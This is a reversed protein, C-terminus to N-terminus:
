VKISAKSTQQVSLLLGGGRFNAEAIFQPIGNTLNVSHEHVHGSFIGHLNPSSFVAEYFSFTTATHGEKPWRPRREIKYSPDTAAGWEPHGCGFGIEHGPFYMPIHIFLFTPLGRAIQQRFFALQAPSIEYTSNDIFVLITGKITKAYMLPDEGQYLPKLRKEIWEARLENIPGPMGEYHWDHNGGTYCYPLETAEMKTLLWEVGAESPYNLIDGDLVVLDVAEERAQALTADFCEFPNTAEGSAFHTTQRYARNMRASYQRFVDGRADDVTVHTDAIVMIKLATPAAYAPLYYNLDTSKLTFTPASSISRSTIEPTVAWAPAHAIIPLTAVTASKQLFKRREM